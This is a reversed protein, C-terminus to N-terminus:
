IGAHCYKHGARSLLSMLLRYFVTTVKHRRLRCVPEFRLKLPDERARGECIGFSHSAKEFKDDLVSQGRRILTQLFHNDSYFEVRSLTLKIRGSGGDDSYVGRPQPCLKPFVVPRLAGCVWEDDIEGLSTVRRHKVFCRIM